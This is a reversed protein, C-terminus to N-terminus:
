GSSCIQIYSPPFLQLSYFLMIPLRIAKVGWSVNIPITFDHLIFHTPCTADMPPFLLVNLRKTSFGTHLLGSLPHTHLHPSLVLIYRWSIPHSAHCTNIHSQTPALHQYNHICTRFFTLFKTVLEPVTLQKLLTSSCPTLYYHKCTTITELM